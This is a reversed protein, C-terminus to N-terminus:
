KTYFDFDTIESIDDMMTSCRGDVTSHEAGSRRSAHRSEREVQEPHLIRGNVIRRYEKRTLRRLVWFKQGNVRCATKYEYENSELLSQMFREREAMNSSSFPIWLVAGSWQATVATGNM